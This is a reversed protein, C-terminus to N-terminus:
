SKLKNFKLNQIGDTFITFGDIKGSTDRAFRISGFEIADSRFIDKMVPYFNVMKGKPGRALLQEGSIEFDYIVKLDKNYFVGVYENQNESKSPAYRVYRYPRSEGLTVDYIAKGEIEQFSFIIKEDGEVLLQFTESTKLPILPAGEEQDLRKYFLTDREVQLKRAIGRKADWYHGEYKKLAKASLSRIKLLKPDISSPETYQNEIYQNAHLMAPMGNYENNNGLVFSTLQQEPFRFVNSAYGGVRGFQWYAPLGREKHYFSRGLTLQGWWSDFTAGNKLTVPKDLKRMIQSLSTQAKGTLASYWRKLDEASTYFVHTLRLKQLKLSDGQNQYSIAKNELINNDEKSFCSNEMQLPSFIYDTAFSALSQGSAKKIIELMLTIETKSTMYSFNTGPIFNLQKQTRIVNLDDEQTHLDNDEIGIIRRLMRLDNLGSTHNVLHSINLRHQYQPFDPLYKRLPDGLSLKGQSELILIGLVVFQRSPYGIQFRTKANNKKGNDVDAYGFAKTYRISDGYILGAVVGPAQKNQWQGFISDISIDKPVFSQSKAPMVTLLLTSLVVFRLQNISIIPNSANSRASPKM